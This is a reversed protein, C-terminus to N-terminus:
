DISRLSFSEHAWAQRLKAESFEDTLKETQSPMALLADYKKNWSDDDPEYCIECQSHPTIPPKDLAFFVNMKADIQLLAPSIHDACLNHVYVPIDGAAAQAWEGVTIHDPHGTLGDPGFTLISDPKVGAIIAKIKQVAETKDKQSCGGDPYGLWHHESIGLIELAQELEQERIKPLSASPWRSEDQVGQEGKTATACVVRQGNQAAAALLSGALFTEDDPHAGVFLITGLQKIDQATKLM